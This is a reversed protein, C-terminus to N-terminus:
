EKYLQRDKKHVIETKQCCHPMEAGQAEPKTAACMKAGQIFIIDRNM